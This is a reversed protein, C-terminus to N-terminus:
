IFSKILTHPTSPVLYINIEAKPNELELIFTDM